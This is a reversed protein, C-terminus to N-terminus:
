ESLTSDFIGQYQARLNLNKQFAVLPLSTANTTKTFM